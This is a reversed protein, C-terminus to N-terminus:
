DVSDFQETAARCIPCRDPAENTAIFGCIQCVHYSHATDPSTKAMSEHNICAKMIQILTVEVVSTRETAATMIMPQIMKADLETTESGQRSDDLTNEYITLLLIRAKEAHVAQGQSLAAHLMAANPQELQTAEKALQSNEASEATKSFYLASLNRESQTM